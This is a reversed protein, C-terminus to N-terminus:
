AGKGFNPNECAGNACAPEQSVNTADEEEVLALYDVPRYGAVLQNWRAEDAETVVAEFPAFSYVKDDVPLFSVGAFDDRNSWLYDAVREWEEPRVPVTNSVNHVYGPSSEPRATGTAVWNRQTSRVAELFEVASFDSKLRAGEPAEVPFEIVWDGDPKKVCMHPNTARFHQFVAELENATVRRVYRRAHHPHHGSGVNGLALSTTGSPKVTTLRAAPRIGIMEAFEANWEVVREAVHRQHEPDLAIDPADMMGTMGVGLLAEREAIVESVWGLYPMDTYAAQLTGILTGAEAAEVFDELTKFKQANLEVLNCFAFGTYSEGMKVSPMPKGRRARDKLLKMVEYTITLRCNLSIEACPNRVEDYDAVFVFGPEGFQKTMQFIRMFQSQKVDDRKLVVSNNANALWPEREFWDGTKLYMMESDELSFLAIMASRRIGGSLVADALLCMIRHAEVPRLRRGQAGLLIARVAELAKKLPLHGPAKGGSTKLIVGEDRVLHFAFEVHVGNVFSRFLAKVADAWGEISDQVVHHTVKKEDIFKFEPLKDVHRFQVSYGVGCGSLLLFFAESFAELRDVHTASCNYMRNNNVEIAAGGFQMSRMSPLVRQARVLDFAKEIRESMGPIHNFRRHHMNEARSVTEEYVERRKKYDVYRAYKGAHIYDSVAKPDPHRRATRAEARKQRYIIFAKAVDFLKGHMLAVEVCDQVTEVDVIEKGALTKMALSTIAEVAKDDILKGTDGWAGRIASTIKNIDFAQLTVGDRKRIQQPPSRDEIQM